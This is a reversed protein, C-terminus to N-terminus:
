DFRQARREGARYQRHAERVLVWFNVKVGHVWKEGEGFVRNRGITWAAGFEPAWSSDTNGIHSVPWVTYFISPNRM